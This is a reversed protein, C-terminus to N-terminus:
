PRPGLELTALALHRDRGDAGRWEVQAEVRYLTYAGPPPPQSPNDAVARAVTVTWRYRRDDTEGQREGEKLTEEAGAQALKSQAITLAGSQDELAGARALGASFIEFASTLILSLLVFAVVVEILTFGSARRRTM